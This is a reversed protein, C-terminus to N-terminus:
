NMWTELRNKVFQKTNKVSFIDEINMFEPWLSQLAVLTQYGLTLNTALLKDILKGFIPNPAWKESKVPKAPHDVMEQFMQQFANTLLKPVPIDGDFIRHDGSLSVPVMDKIEFANTTRNWVQKREVTLITFKLGEQKRLPSCVQSYGTMGINSLSIVSNGPIPYPYAGHAYDYLLDDLTTKLHPNKKEMQERKKFCYAMMQMVVRIRNALEMSSMKHCDQFVINGVQDGCDRLKIVIALYVHDSQYMKKFSLYSRFAKNESIFQSIAQMTLTTLTESPFKKEFFGLCSVDMNFHGVMTPDGPADWQTMFIKRTPTMEVESNHQAYYLAKEFFNQSMQLMFRWQESPIMNIKKLQKIHKANLSQVLSHTAPIGLLENLALLYKPQTMINTLLSEELAELKKRMTNKDPTGIEQYLEAECVHRHEDKIIVEFVRPAINQQYLSKFVEEIWGEAVLNLMVLALKPCDENRIFDCLLEINQNYDPPFAQPACLTYVIKTFVMGHYIEDLLQARLKLKLHPMSMKDEFRLPVQIALVELQALLSFTYIYLSKEHKIEFPLGDKFLDHMRAKIIEKEEQTIKNWGEMIWKEAGWSPKLLENLEDVIVSM